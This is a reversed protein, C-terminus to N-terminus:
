ASDPERPWRTALAPDRRSLIAMWRALPLLSAILSAGEPTFSVARLICYAFVDALSM